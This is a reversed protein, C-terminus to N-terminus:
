TGVEAPISRFGNLIVNPLPELGEIKVRVGSNRLEELAIRAELRALPAGLCLHIGSGFSLHPNPKRSPNFSDPEEFVSEDRNASAIWVRIGEGERIRRGRLEVDRRAVRFTRRVPPAFRLVEEVAWTTSEGGSVSDWRHFRTLTVAANGILNTTTENGAILLLVTYALQEIRSLRKGRFEARRIKSILDEGEKHSDLTENVFQLMETLASWDTPMGSDKGLNLAIADSWRKVKSSDQRSLGLLKSIVEIPLPVAFDRILDFRNGSNRILARATERVFNEITALHSPSFFPSTVSRLEDHLPPDATLMTYKTPIDFLENARNTRLEEATTQDYGSFGSSFLQYQNLVNRVDEYLFVNWAEGDFHVPDNRRMHALWPYPDLLFQPSLEDM